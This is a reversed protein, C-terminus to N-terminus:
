SDGELKSQDRGNETYNVVMWGIVEKGRECEDVFDRASLM